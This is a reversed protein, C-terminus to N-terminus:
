SLLTIAAEIRALSEDKGLAELLLFPDPSRDKGSLAFRLPWLVAGRGEEEAYPWLVSKVTDYNFTTADVGKVLFRVTMLHERVREPAPDKKWVLGSVDVTPRTEYFLFEGADVAERLERKTSFRELMDDFARDCRSVIEVLADHGVLAELAHAVLENRPLRARHERNLWKLKEKDFVAGGKQVGTLSFQEILEELTFVEKDTGPNWGLLALYNILAEPLIGQAQYESVSVAGKRKSLKSKDPALILPLHAYLPRTYGLAEQILIQRPTNSIHDEGRIVHTINMAADDVVVALHYLPDTRSRAIVFDGLETTDFTIEGRIEDIFTITKGVNRLRVVEVIREPDDKAPEKSVYAQDAAILTDLAQTHADVCKSQYVPAEHKIGLWALGELINDTYEQKSRGKDTDEIRVLFRGAHQMAYLYSILATRATGIHFLGTPSPAIRTVVQQTNNNM